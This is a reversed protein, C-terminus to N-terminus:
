LQDPCSGRYCTPAVIRKWPCTQMLQIIHLPPMDPLFSNLLHDVRCALHVAHLAHTLTLCLPERVMQDFGVSDLVPRDPRIARPVCDQLVDKNYHATVPVSLM